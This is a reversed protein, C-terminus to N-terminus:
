SLILKLICIKFIAKAKNIYSIGDTLQEIVDYINKKKVVENETDFYTVEKLYNKTTNELVYAYKNFKKDLFLQNSYDIEIQPFPFSTAAKNVKEELKFIDEDFKNKVFAIANALYFDRNKKFILEVIEQENRFEIKFNNNEDIIYESQYIVGVEM